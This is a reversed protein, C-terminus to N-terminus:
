SSQGQQLCDFEERSGHKVMAQYFRVERGLDVTFPPGYPQFGLQLLRMVSDSMSLTPTNSAIRYDVIM